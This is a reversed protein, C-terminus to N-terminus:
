KKHLSGGGLLHWLAEPPLAGTDQFLSMFDLANQGIALRGEVFKMMMQAPMAAAQGSSRVTLHIQGYLAVWEATEISHEVELRVDTFAALIARHFQAFEKPGVVRKPLVGEAEVDSLMWKAIAAEDEAGWVEAFFEEFRERLEPM